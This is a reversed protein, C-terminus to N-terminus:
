FTRRNLRALELSMKNVMETTMRDVSQPTSMYFRAGAFDISINTDGGGVPSSGKFGVVTDSPSFAMPAQGPRIIFDSFNTLNGFEEQIFKYLPVAPILAETVQVSKTQKERGMIWKLLKYTAAAIALVIAVKVIFTGVSALKIKAIFGTIAVWAAKSWDLVTYIIKKALLGAHKSLYAVKSVVWLFGSKVYSAAAYIVKKAGTGAHKVLYAVKTVVWKIGAGGKEIISFVFKISASTALVLTKVSLILADVIALSAAFMTAIAVIGIVFKSQEPNDKLYDTIKNIANALRKFVRLVDKQVLLFLRLLSARVLNFGAAMIPTNVFLAAMTGLGILGFMKMTNRANKLTKEYRKTATDVSETKSKTDDLTKNVERGGTKFGTTELAIRLIVDMGM